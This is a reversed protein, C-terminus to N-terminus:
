NLLEEVTRLAQELRAREEEAARGEEQELIAGLLRELAAADTSVVVPKGDPPVMRLEKLEQDGKAPGQVPWRIVAFLRAKEKGWPIAAEHLRHGLDFAWMVLRRSTAETLSDVLRARVGGVSNPTAM